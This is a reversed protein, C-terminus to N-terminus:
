MHAPVAHDASRKARIALVLLLGLTYHVLVSAVVTVKGLATAFIQQDALALWMVWDATASGLQYFALAGAVGVHPAKRFIWAVWAQSALAVGMLKALWQGDATLVWGTVSQVMSPPTLVAVLAYVLELLAVVTFLLRLDVLRKM